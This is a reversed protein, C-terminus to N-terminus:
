LGAPLKSWDFLSAMRIPTTTVSGVHDDPRGKMRNIKVVVDKDPRSVIVSFNAFGNTVVGSERVAEAAIEIGYPDSIFHRISTPPPLDEISCIRKRNQGKDTMRGCGEM